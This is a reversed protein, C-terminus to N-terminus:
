FLTNHVNKDIKLHKCPISEIYVICSFMIVKNVKTNIVVSMVIHQHKKHSEIHVNVYM